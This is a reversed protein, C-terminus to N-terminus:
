GSRRATGGGAGYRRERGADRERGGALDDVFQMDFDKTLHTIILIFLDPDHLFSGQGDGACSPFQGSPNMLLLLAIKRAGARGITIQEFNFAILGYLLLRLMM